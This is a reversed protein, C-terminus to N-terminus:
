LLQDFQCLNIQEGYFTTKLVINDNSVFNLRRKKMLYISLSTKGAHKDGLIMIGDGNDTALGAAHYFFPQSNIQYFLFNRVM